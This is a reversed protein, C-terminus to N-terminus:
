HNTQKKGTITIFITLFNWFVTNQPNKKEKEKGTEDDLAKCLLLFLFLLCRGNYFAIM